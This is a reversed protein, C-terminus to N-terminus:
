KGCRPCAALLFRIRDIRVDRRRLAGLRSVAGSGHGVALDPRGTADPSIKSPLGIKNKHFPNAGTGTQKNKFPFLVRKTQVRFVTQKKGPSIAANM